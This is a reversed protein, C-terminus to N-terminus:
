TTKNKDLMRIYHFIYQQAVGKYRGLADTDLNGNFYTDIARKMWVDIPFADLRTYAFLAVCSAVKDGVGKIGKLSKIVHDCTRAAGIKELSIAGTNIKEVADVIYKYRFGPNSKKLLEPNSAIESATPFTYCIGCEKCIEECPTGSIKGLPCSKIGNQLCINVGYEASISRIIKRIRPINNNQSIIFSILTEFPAQRLIAIGSVSNIADKLWQSDTRKAIDERIRSYDTDLDFYPRIVRNFSEEDTDYFFLEGAKYQGVRVIMNGIITIYESYQGTDATKEYRFCQGCEMTDALSYEGIDYVRIIDKKGMEKKIEYFM